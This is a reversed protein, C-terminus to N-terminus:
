EYKSSKKHPILVNIEITGTPNYSCFLDKKGFPLARSNKAEDTLNLEEPETQIPAEYSVGRNSKSLVAM